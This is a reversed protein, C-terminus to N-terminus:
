ASLSEDIQKLWREINPPYENWMDEPDDVEEACWRDKAKLLDKKISELCAALKEERTM